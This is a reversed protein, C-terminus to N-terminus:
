ELKVCENSVYGETNIIVNLDSPQYNLTYNFNLLLYDRIDLNFPIGTTFIKFIGQIPSKSLPIISINYIGDYDCKFTLLPSKKNIIYNISESNQKEILLKYSDSYFTSLFFCIQNKNAPRSYSLKYKSEGDFLIEQAIYIENEGKNKVEIAKYFNLSKIFRLEQSIINVLYDQNNDNQAMLDKIDIITNIINEKEVYNLVNIIVKKSNETILETLFCPDNFNDLNFDENKPGIIIYYKTSSNIYNSVFKINLTKEKSNINAYLILISNVGRKIFYDKQKIISGDNEDYISYSLVFKNNSNIKLNMNEATSEFVSIQSNTFNRTQKGGASNSVYNIYTNTDKKNLCYYIQLSMKNIYGSYMINIAEEEKNPNIVFFDATKNLNIAQYYNLSINLQIDKESYYYFYLKENQVM